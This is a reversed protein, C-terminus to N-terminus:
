KKNEAHKLKFGLQTLFTENEPTLHTQNTTPLTKKSLKIKKKPSPRPRAQLSSPTVGEFNEGSISFLKNIFDTKYGSDDDSYVIM